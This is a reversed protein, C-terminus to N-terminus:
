MSGVDQSNDQDPKAPQQAAVIGPLLTALLAIVLFYSKMPILIAEQREPPLTVPRTPRLAALDPRRNHPSPCAPGTEDSKRISPLDKRKLPSAVLSPSPLQHPM